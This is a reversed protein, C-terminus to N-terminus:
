IPPFSYNYVEEWPIEIGCGRRGKADDEKGETDDGDGNNIPEPLINMPGRVCNVSTVHQHDRPVEMANVEKNERKKKKCM